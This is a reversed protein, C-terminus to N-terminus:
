VNFFYSLYNDTFNKIRWCDFLRMWIQVVHLNKMLSDIRIYLQIANLPHIFNQIFPSLYNEFLTKSGISNLGMNLLSVKGNQLFKIMMNLTDVNLVQSKYSFHFFRTTM